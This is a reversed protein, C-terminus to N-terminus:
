IRLVAVSSGSEYHRDGPPFIALANADALTRLDGSGKWPLPTVRRMGDPLETLRSPWYTARQGRQAHDTTLAAQVPQQVCDKHGALKLIAPRVFLEFCVLSSVPNGPLGFVLTRHGGDDKIGFWLPKGPKLNIKHFVERVGCDALVQPVLDLVGASVGGSLILVDTRLGQGIKARLDVATDEAIGLDFGAAGADKVLALLMPGNSNRIQGPGPIEQVSALENGTALVAIRPQLVRVTGRGVEALLGIEVPRLHRHLHASLVEDGRRMSFGRRVINQSPKVPAELIRVRPPASDNEAVTKEVMVVADAGDPIPAGTMIRTATGPEVKREPVQGAAVEEIVTLETQPGTVSAAILAYGDVISKDHPPSDIDSTITEDLALGLADALPVERPPPLEVEQLVLALAEEVNLM